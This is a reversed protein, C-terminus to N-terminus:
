VCKAFAWQGKKGATDITGRKALEMLGSGVNKRRREVELTSWWTYQNALQGTERDVTARYGLLPRSPRLRLSRNFTEHITNPYEADNHIDVLKDSYGVLRYHGTSTSTATGRVERAQVGNVDLEDPLAVPFIPDSPTM